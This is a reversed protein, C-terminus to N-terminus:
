YTLLYEVVTEDGNPAHNENVSILMLNNVRRGVPFSLWSGARLVDQEGILQGDAWLQLHAKSKQGVDDHALVRLASVYTTSYYEVSVLSNKGCIEGGICAYPNFSTSVNASFAKVSYVNDAAFAAAPIVTALAAAVLIKKM